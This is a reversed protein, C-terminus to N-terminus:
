SNSNRSVRPIIFQTRILSIRFPNIAHFFERWKFLHGLAFLAFDVALASLDPARKVRYRPRGFVQLNVVSGSGPTPIVIIIGAGPKNNLVLNAAVRTIPLLLQILITIHWRTNKAPIHYLIM